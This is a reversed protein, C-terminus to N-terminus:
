KLVENGNSHDWHKHTTLITISAGPAELNPLQFAKCFADLKDVESVDVFFGKTRDAENFVYYCFNDDLMPIVAVSIM